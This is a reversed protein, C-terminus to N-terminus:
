PAPLPPFGHAARHADLLQRAHPSDPEVALWDALYRETAERSTISPSPALRGPFYAPIWLRALLAISSAMAVLALAYALRTSFTLRRARREAWLAGTACIWFHGLAASFLYLMLRFPNLSFVSTRWEPPDFLYDPPRVNVGLWINMLQLGVMATLLAGALYPTVQDSLFRRKTACLVLYALASLLAIGALVLFIWDGTHNMAGDDM